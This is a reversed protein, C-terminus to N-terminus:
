IPKMGYLYQDKQMEIAHESLLIIMFIANRMGADQVFGWQEKVIESFTRNWAKNMIIRLTLKTIHRLLSIIQRLECETACARKPLAIFNSKSLDDAIEGTNYMQNIVETAEGNRFDELATVLGTAIEGPGTTKNRKMKAMAARLESRLIEPGEMNKRIIPKEGRNDKFLQFRRGFNLM